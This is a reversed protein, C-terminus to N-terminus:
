VVLSKMANQCFKRWVLSYIRFRILSWLRYLYSRTDSYPGAPPTSLDSSPNPKIDQDCVDIYKLPGSCANWLRDVIATKTGEIDFDGPMLSIRLDTHAIEGNEIHHVVDASSIGNLAGVTALARVASGNLRYAGRYIYRKSEYKKQGRRNKNMNIAVRCGYGHVHKTTPVYREWALSGLLTRKDLDDKLYLLKEPAFQKGKFSNPHICCRFLSDIDPIRRYRM